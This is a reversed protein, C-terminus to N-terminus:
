SLRPLLDAAHRYPAARGVGFRFRCSRGSAGDAVIQVSTVPGPPAWRPRHARIGPFRGTLRIVILRESGCVDAQDPEKVPGRRIIATASAIHAHDLEVARQVAAVALAYQRPSLPGDYTSAEFGKQTADARLLMVGWSGASVLLALCATLVVRTRTRRWRHAEALPDLGRHAPSPPRRM